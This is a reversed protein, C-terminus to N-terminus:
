SALIVRSLSSARLGRSSRLSGTLFVRKLWRDTGDFRPKFRPRGHAVRYNDIFLADGSELAIGIQANCLSAELKKLAEAAAQDGPVASQRNANFRFYPQKRDGFLISTPASPQPADHAVNVGVIFRHEFLIDKEHENLEVDLITSVVTPVLGHNRLCILGLYEPANPHFADETHLSFDIGSGSGSAESLKDKQPLIDTIVSGGQHSSWGFLEGVLCALLCQIVEVARVEKSQPKAPIEVPTPPIQGPEYPLNRLRIWPATEERKFRRLARRIREPLSGSAVAVEDMWDDRKWQTIRSTIEKVKTEIEKREEPTLVLDFKRSM